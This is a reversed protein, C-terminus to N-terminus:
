SIVPGVRDSIAGLRAPDFPAEFMAIVHHAGADRFQGVLDAFAGPDGDAKVKVSVEIDAADRGVDACHRHLVDVKHRLTEPDGGPLNWQDAWLAAIRLTRKEGTGGITIPPHPQQIPKPLARAGELHHFPGDFTTVEQTFLLHLIECTEELRDFREKWSPPLPIDYAVHEAEAWGTGLGIELRGGSTVDLTAAMNALVAPHRYTNGTVLVGLRLRHVLGSLAALMTWGEFVAGHRNSFIPDIHDFTWGADYLEIRDGEKWFDVIPQWDSHQPRTKFSLRM